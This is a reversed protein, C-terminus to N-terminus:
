EGILRLDSSLTSSHGVTLGGLQHFLCPGIFLSGPPALTPPLPPPLLLTLPQPGLKCRLSTLVLQTEPGGPFSRLHDLLSLLDCLIGGRGGVERNNELCQATRAISLYKPVMTKARSIHRDLSSPLATFLDNMFVLHYISHYFDGCPAICACLVSWLVRTDPFAQQHSPHGPSPQCHGQWASFVYTNINKRPLFFLLHLPM